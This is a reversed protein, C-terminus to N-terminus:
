RILQMGIFQGPRKEAGIGGAWEIYGREQGDSDNVLLSFGFITNPRPRLPSLQTWPIAAEYITRSGVREIAIEAAPVPGPLGGGAFRYLVPRLRGTSM